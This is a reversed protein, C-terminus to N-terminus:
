ANQTEKNTEPLKLDVDAVWVNLIQEFANKAAEDNELEVFIANTYFSFTIKKGEVAMTTVHELNVATPKEGNFRFIDRKPRAKKTTECCESM